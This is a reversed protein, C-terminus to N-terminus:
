AVQGEVKMISKGTRDMYLRAWWVITLPAIVVISLIMNVMLWVVVMYSIMGMIQSIIGLGLSIAMILIWIMLVDLKNNLFFGVGKKIGQITGIGDIVIAYKVAIFVVSVILVYLVFAFVGGAFLLDSLPDSLLVDIPAYLIGPIVFVIGMLTILGIIIDAFFVSIVSRKGHEVMDSLTADGSENARKAMGIAGASFFANTLGVSIIFVIVALAIVGMVSGIQGLLLEPTLEEPSLSMLPGLIALITALVIAFVLITIVVINLILPICINLNKKWTNFGNKLISEINEPM